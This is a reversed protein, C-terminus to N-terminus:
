NIDIDLEKRAPGTYVGPKVKEGVNLGSIIETHSDGRLGVVVPRKAFSDVAKGEKVTQTLVQVNGSKGLGEASDTPVRIVDKRRDIIIACKASMGPKLRADPRDVLLEVAFRIVGQNNSQGQQGEGGGPTAPGIAAPAVQRVTGNFIVGRAADITIEVPLGAHIKHVDVENVSMKVLMKSLDAIQLVPTGTSFTSVGSTVLEGQEIYRRTVVGDMNAVLSTDHQRVEFERLQNELQVVAARAAAEDDLRMKDQQRGQLALKLQVRAQQVSARASDVERQKIALISRNARARSQAAQAEKVRSEAGAIELRNQEEILDLRKKAQDRRANAAALDTKAADVAQESVFGRTFLHQQRDVQRRANDAGARADEYGSEATVVAQPHTANKLLTLNDQATKLSADAQDLDSATIAPQARAEEETVKLRAEAAHLAEEQQRIGAVTQDKQYTVGTQAQKLRARAGDLQAKIQEVQSNIETPDIEALLQGARVRYGELVYLRAIRGAVKSKVEVKKLPEITGTETVKIAVEGRDATNFRTPTSAARTLTRVGVYALGGVILLPLLCGLLLKRKM